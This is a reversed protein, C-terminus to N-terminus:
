IADQSPTAGAQLVNKSRTTDDHEVALFVKRQALVPANGAGSGRHRLVVRGRAAGYGFQNFQFVQTYIEIVQRDTRWTQGAQM